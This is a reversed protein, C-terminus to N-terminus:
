AASQSSLPNQMLATQIKQHVLEALRGAEAELNKPDFGRVSVAPLIRLSMKSKKTLLISHKPIAHESGQIVMPLIDRGTEVALRFAGPKFNGLKGDKSRTGEPFFFVSSGRQLWEKCHNLCKERSNPDGRNIAIYGNLVMNWGLLPAKFMSAKSVWKFHLFSRFIVIIDMMSKHNSVMVYARKPDVNERGLVKISWFPNCWVYLSAWFCSYKQLVRRNPDFPRTFLYIVLAGVFLVLSTLIFFAWFAINLGWYLIRM